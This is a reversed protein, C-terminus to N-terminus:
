RTMERPRFTSVEALQEFLERERDTLHKPVVIKVTAYLDGHGGRPGPFGQGRLRLRRGSSSGPPVRVQASGDLTPVQVTAGLAAEWPTVPVDVRLDRGDLSFRPHPSIQVRLFLDGSPGSARGRAGQGALRIRQGDRVGAPIQVDYTRGDDLGVSRKGGAAAEELSLLLLAEHDAGRAAAGPGRAGTGRGGGGFFSGFLDSLDAEHDFQVRVDGFGGPAGFGGQTGFGGFDQPGRDPGRRWNAGLQDYRARKDPDSLVEYAESIAKFHEEAGPQKNVDPHHRRALTRYARRIAETDADHGVGLLEYFDRTATTM